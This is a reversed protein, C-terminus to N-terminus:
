NWYYRGKLYLEEAEPDHSHLSALVVKGSSTAPAGGPTAGVTGQTRPRYFMAVAILSVTLLAAMGIRSFNWSTRPAPPLVEVATAPPAILNLKPSVAQAIRPAALWAELEDTYAYVRGKAGPLRHIPLGLEKEWRHVTREDRDFFSAIEKWSDLRRDPTASNEAALTMFHGTRDCIGQQGRM